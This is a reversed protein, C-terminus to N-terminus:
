PQLPVPYSRLGIIWLIFFVLAAAVWLGLGRQAHGDSGFGRWAAGFLSAIFGVFGVEVLLLSM